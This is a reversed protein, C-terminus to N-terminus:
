TRASSDIRAPGCPAPPDLGSLRGLELRASRRRGEAPCGSSPPPQTPEILLCFRSQSWCFTSGTTSHGCRESAHSPTPPAARAIGVASSLRLVWSQWASCSWVRRNRFPLLPTPRILSCSIAEWIPQSDSISTTSTGVPVTGDFLLIYGPKIDAQAFYQPNDFGVTNAGTGPPGSVQFLLTTWPVGTNNVIGGTGASTHILYGGASDVTLPIMLPAVSTFNLSVDAASSTQSDIVATGTGGPGSVPGIQTIDGANAVPVLGVLVVLATLSLCIRKFM